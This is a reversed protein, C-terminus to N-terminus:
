LQEMAKAYNSATKRHLYVLAQTMADVQDDHRGPDGNFDTLEEIFDHVWPAVTPDPLWVNKSEWLPEIAQARSVKGGQPNVAILGPVTDHLTSIVASGNAKDEVLKRTAKPWKASLTKIARCTASFTMQDRVQDLLFFLGMYRAWVQGVVYDSDDLGKFTCDWSQIYEVRGKPFAKWHQVWDRKFIGGGSPMPRQQDQSAVGRSGLEKKREAQIEEPFRAPWLLEGEERPDKYKIPTPPTKEGKADERLACPHPMSIVCKPEYRMPLNLHTYDGTPLVLGSLDREHLRQMIITRTARAPDVVRTAMTESWWEECVQLKTSDVRAGRADLPKIPDDVLQHDAHEGTAAGGVTVAFRFGAASNSYKVSSWDDRNKKWLGGWRQQYWETEMLQLARLSDRRAIMGSYSATIWKCSPTHTWTWSPWFVSCTLSKMSGPPVNIVLRRIERRTVAELHECIADIHYNPIFERAPEVQPWAMEIYERLSRSGLERDLLIDSPVVM